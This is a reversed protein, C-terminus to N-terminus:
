QTSSLTYHTANLTYAHRNLSAHFLNERDTINSFKTFFQLKNETKPKSKVTEIVVYNMVMMHEPAYFNKQWINQACTFQCGQKRNMCAHKRGSEKHTCIEATCEHGMYM